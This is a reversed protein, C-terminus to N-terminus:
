RSLDLWSPLFHCLMWGSSLSSLPPQYCAEMSRMLDYPLELRVVPRTEQPAGYQVHLGPQKEMVVWSVTACMHVSALTHVCVDNGLM